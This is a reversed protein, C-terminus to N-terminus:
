QKVEKQLKAKRNLYATRRYEKIKEPNTEKLKKLYNKAKEQVIEKHEKYYKQCSTNNTYKKLKEKLKENECKLKEIEKQLLEIEM